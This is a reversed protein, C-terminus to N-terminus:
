TTVEQRRVLERLLDRIEVLLEVRLLDRIEVLLEGEAFPVAVPIGHLEIGHDSGYEHVVEPRGHRVVAVLGDASAFRESYPTRPDPVLDPAAEQDRV